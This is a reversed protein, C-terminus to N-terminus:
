DCLQICIYFRVNKYDKDGIFELSGINSHQHDEFKFDCHCGKTRIRVGQTWLNNDDLLLM